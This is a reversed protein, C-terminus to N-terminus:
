EADIKQREQPHAPASLGQGGEALAYPLADKLADRPAREKGEDIEVPDRL